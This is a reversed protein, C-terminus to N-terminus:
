DITEVTVRVKRNVFRELDVHIGSDSWSQLRVFMGEGKNGKIHVIMAHLCPFRTVDRRQVVTQEFVKKFKKAM